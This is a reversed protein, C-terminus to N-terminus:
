PVVATQAPRAIALGRLRGAWECLDFRAVMQQVAQRKVGLLAAAHTYNGRAHRLAERLMARKIGEQASFLHLKGVLSAALEELRPETHRRPAAEDFCPNMM